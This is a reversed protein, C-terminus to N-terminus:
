VMGELQEFRSARSAKLLVADGSKLWRSLLKAAAELNAAVEVYKVGRHRASKAVVEAWAGVVVLGTVVGAAQEGAEEHASEAYEGLEAMDGLVAYKKGTVSIDDLTGFAAEVSEANANYADNIWVVGKRKTMQMRQKPQPCDHLGMMITERDIGMEAAAAIALAGNAAQHRGLLPIEYEGSLESNPSSLMFRTMGGAIQVGGVYWHNKPGFGVTECVASCRQIISNVWSGDGYLFLKGSEPLLEALMGEEKVVGDLDHFFELHERGIGTILGYMPKSMRILPALEGPHNTGLELVAVQTDSCIRFLTAPLGVDNNFSAESFVTQYKKRLISALMEKTSTKGNSGAVGFVPLDFQDRHAAALQGYAKRADDVLLCPVDKIPEDVVVAVAGMEVAKAAFKNGNFNKGKLAVFLDGSKIKRTDTCVRNFQISNDLASSNGSCSDILFNISWSSM